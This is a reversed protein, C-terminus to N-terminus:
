RSRNTPVGPAHAQGRLGRSGRATQQQLCCGGTEAACSPLQRWQELCREIASTSQAMWTLIFGDIRRTTMQM